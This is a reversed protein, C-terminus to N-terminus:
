AVCNTKDRQSNRDKHRDTRQRDTYLDPEESSSFWYASSASSFSSSFKLLLPPLIFLDSSHKSCLEGKNRNPTMNNISKRNRSIALIPVRITWYDKRCSRHTAIKNERM